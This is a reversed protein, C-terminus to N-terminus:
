ALYASNIWHSGSPWLQGKTVAATAVTKYLHDVTSSVAESNEYEEFIIVRTKIDWPQGLYVNGTLNYGMVATDRCVINSTSNNFIYWSTDTDTARNNATIAGGGNSIIRCQEFWAAAKGFIYDVTRSLINQYGYFGCGYYSQRDGDVTLAVAQAGEGITNKIDINYMSPNGSRVNVVSSLDLTGAVPSTINFAITVTNYKYIMVDETYKYLILPGEFEVTINKYYMGSYIFICASATDSLSFVASGIHHPQQYIYGRYEM